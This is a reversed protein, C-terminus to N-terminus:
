ARSVIMADGFSLFRYGEELATRYIDRWRSGAFAELMLLLTSRPQHFNTMLTDVVAFDYDGRIFLSTRGSLQGTAAVSEM